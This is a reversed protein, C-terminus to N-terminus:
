VVDNCFRRFECSVCIARSTPPDPMREHDIALSMNRLMDMVQQRQRASINVREVSRNPIHYIFGSRVPLQLLEEALLAYAVLQLKFHRGAARESDKYEIVIGQADPANRAPTIILLDLRGRLGLKESRLDLDFLREGSSLGYTRLSRRQEREAADAHAAIGQRMADTVPRIRPLCYHYFPIRGCYAWQKLDTVEFSTETM